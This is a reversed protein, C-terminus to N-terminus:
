GGTHAAVWDAIYREWLALWRDWQAPPVDPEDLALFEAQDPHQESVWDAVEEVHEAMGNYEFNWTPDAEIVEGAENLWLTFTADEFPGRGVAESGMVHLSFLCLVGTGVSNSTKEQCPEVILQLGWAQDRDMAIRWGDVDDPDAAMAAVTTIDNAAYAAVFEEAVQEASPEPDQAPAPGTRDQTLGTGWFVATAAAAAALSAAFVATRRHGGLARPPEPDGRTLFERLEEQTDTQSMADEARRHLVETLRREVDLSSM